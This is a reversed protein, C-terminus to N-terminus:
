TYLKIWLLAQREFLTQQASQSVIYLKEPQM